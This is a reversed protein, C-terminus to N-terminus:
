TKAPLRSHAQKQIGSWSPPITGSNDGTYAMFAVKRGDPTMDLGGAGITANAANTHITLTLGAAADYRLLVATSGTDLSAEYYIVQGDDSMAHNFATVNTYGLVSSVVNSADASVWVTSREILDRRYIEDLLGRNPARSNSSSFTM